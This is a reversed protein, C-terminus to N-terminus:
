RRQNAQWTGLHDQGYCAPCKLHSPQRRLLPHPPEVLFAPDDAPDIRRLVRLAIGVENMQWIAVRFDHGGIFEPHAPRDRRASGIPRSLAPVTSVRKKWVQLVAKRRLTM